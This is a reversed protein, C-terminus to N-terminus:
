LSPLAFCVQHHSVRLQGLRSPTGSPSPPVHHEHYRAENHLRLSVTASSHSVWTSVSVEKKPRFFSWEKTSDDVDNKVEAVEPTLFFRVEVVEGAGEDKGESLAPEASSGSM